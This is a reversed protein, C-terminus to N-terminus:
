PTKIRACQVAAELEWDESTGGNVEIASALWGIEPASPPFVFTNETLAVFGEGGSIRAGGGMPIKGDPCEVIVTKNESSEGSYESQSNFDYPILNGLDSGKVSGNKIKNSNVANNRIKATNISNGRIKSSNVAGNRIKRLTVSNNRIKNSTVANNRLDNTGIKKAAYAGGGLGVFLAVVAIVLAPSPRRLKFM